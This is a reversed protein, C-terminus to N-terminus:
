TTCATCHNFLRNICNRAILGSICCITSIPSPIAAAIPGTSIMTPCSTVAIPAIMGITVATAPTKLPGTSSTIAPTAAATASSYIAQVFLQPPIWCFVWATIANKCFRIWPPSAPIWANQCACPACIKVTILRYQFIIMLMTLVAMLTIWFMMRATCAAMLPSQYWNPALRRAAQSASHFPSPVIMVALQANRFLESVMRHFLMVVQNLDTSQAWTPVFMTCPMALPMM